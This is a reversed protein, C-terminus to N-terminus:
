PAGGQSSASVDPSAAEVIEDVGAEEATTPAEDMSPALPPAEAPLHLVFMSGGGARPEYRVTGGQAAALQRAIALGLGAGGGDPATDPPRYFAEFIREREGAAVGRGRDGVAIVLWRDVRRVEITIPSTPASYRAANTLLNSLARLAHAFDFYGTLAPAQWDIEYELPHEALVGKANRVAAGVLDEATNFELQVPLVGGRIRSLDLVNDVLQMLRDAQETIGAAVPEISAGAEPPTTQVLEEALAKVTTLPTRFDHSVSALLTDKFRASERLAEAHEVERALRAVEAARSRAEAERARARALLQTTVVATVLFAILVLWDLPKAVAIENYPLQFWYDIAGFALAALVFGLPRGGTVSAGLVILLYVLVVHAQEIQARARIMVVTAVLLVSLWGLWLALRLIPRRRHRV